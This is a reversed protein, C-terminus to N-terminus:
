SIDAGGYHIHPFPGRPGLRARLVPPLRVRTPPASSAALPCAKRAETAWADGTGSEFTVYSVAPHDSVDPAGSRLTQGKM